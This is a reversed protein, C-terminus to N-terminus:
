SNICLGMLQKPLVRRGESGSLPAHKPNEKGEARVWPVARSGHPCRHACVNLHPLLLASAM